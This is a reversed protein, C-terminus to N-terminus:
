VDVVQGIAVFPFAVVGFANIPYIGKPYNSKGENRYPLYYVYYTGKGSTPRFALEGAERTLTIATVDNIRAGTNGDQIIIRHSAPDPDRRRWPIRVHAVTGPGDFHIVARHNGLSDPNWCGPCSTYPINQAHTAFALSICLFIFLHRKQM